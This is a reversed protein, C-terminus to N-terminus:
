YKDRSNRSCFKSWGDNNVGVFCVTCGPFADALLAVAATDQLLQLPTAAAAADLVCGEVVVHGLM